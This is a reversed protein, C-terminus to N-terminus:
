SVRDLAPNEAKIQKKLVGILSEEVNVNEWTLEKKKTNIIVKRYIQLCM